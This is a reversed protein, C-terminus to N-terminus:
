AAVSAAVTTKTPAHVIVIERCGAKRCRKARARAEEWSLRLGDDPERTVEGNNNVVRQGYADTVLYVPKGSARRVDQAAIEEELWGLTMANAATTKDDLAMLWGAGAQLSVKGNDYQDLKRAINGIDKGASKFWAYSPGLGGTAHMESHKWTFPDLGKALARVIGARRCLALFSDKCDEGPSDGNETDGPGTLGDDGWFLHRCTSDRDFHEDCIACCCIGSEAEDADEFPDGPLDVLRRPACSLIEAETARRTSQADADWTTLAVCDAAWWSRGSPLMLEPYNPHFGSGHDHFMMGRRVEAFDYSAETTVVSSPKGDLYDVFVIDGHHTTPYPDGLRRPTSM